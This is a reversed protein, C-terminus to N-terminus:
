DWHIFSWECTKDATFGGGSTQFVVQHDEIDGGIATTGYPIQLWDAPTGQPVVQTTVRPPHGTFYDRVTLKFSPLRQVGMGHYRFPDGHRTMLFNDVISTGMPITLPGADWTVRRGPSTNVQAWTYTVYGDLLRWKIYANPDNLDDYGPDQESSPAIGFTAYGTAIDTRDSTDGPDNHVWHWTCKSIGKYVQRNPYVTRLWFRFITNTGAAEVAAGSASNKAQANVSAAAYSSNLELRVAYDDSGLILSPIILMISSDETFVAQITCIQTTPQINILRLDVFGGSAGVLEIDMSYPIGQVSVVPIHIISVSSLTASCSPDTVAHANFPAAFFLLATVISLIATASSQKV